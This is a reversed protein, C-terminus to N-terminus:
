TSSGEEEWLAQVKGQLVLLAATEALAKDKRHLERELRRIRKRDRANVLKQPAKLGGIIAQKWEGLQAEHVGERRLFDGMQDDALAMAKAVVLLKQEATWDKPSMSAAESPASPPDNKKMRALSRAENLWKSLSSKSVGTDKAVAMGTEADPPSMRQVMRAKFKASYVTRRAM